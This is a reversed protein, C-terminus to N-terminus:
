KVTEYEAKAEKLVPLGPDAGQWLALFDQYASLAGKKDGNLARARALGLRALSGLPFNLVVGRNDLIKQFEADATKGDHADLAVLGQEYVPYLTGLQFPQPSGLEYPATARLLETAKATDGERRAIEARIVPVWYDTVLADTPFRQSLDDAMTQARAGDGARAFALAALTQVDKSSALALAAMIESHTQEVEGAEAARLASEVRYFAATEKDGGRSAASAARETYVRALAFKGHYAETNAQSDLLM